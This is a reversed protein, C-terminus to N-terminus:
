KLATLDIETVGSEAVEMMYKAEQFKASFFKAREQWYVKNNAAFRWGMFNVLKSLSIGEHRAMDKLRALVVRDFAISTAKKNPHKVM